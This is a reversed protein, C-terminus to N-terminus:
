LTRVEEPGNALQELYSVCGLLGKAHNSAQCGEPDESALVTEETPNESDSAVAWYGPKEITRNTGTTSESM